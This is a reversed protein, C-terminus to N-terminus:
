AHWAWIGGQAEGNPNMEYFITCEDDMYMYMTGGNVERLDQKTLEQKAYDQLLKM